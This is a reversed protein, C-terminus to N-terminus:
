EDKEGQKKQKETEQINWKLEILSVVAQDINEIRFEYTHGEHIGTITQIILMLKQDQTLSSMM